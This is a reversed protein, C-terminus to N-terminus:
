PELLLFASDALVVSLVDEDALEDVLSAELELLDSVVLDSVVDSVLLGLFGSVVDPGFPLLV